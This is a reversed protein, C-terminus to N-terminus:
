YRKWLLGRLYIILALTNHFSHITITSFINDTKHYLYAFVFGLSCYPILYLLGQINSLSTLVHLGGFILGSTLIYILKNNTIDKISKRFILEETIPAYIVLQFAMYLPYSDILTRVNEENQALAGNTLITIIFNSTIMIGFGILWTSFSEKLHKKLNDNFYNKFDKKITKRYIFLMLIVFLCDNVFLILIKMTKNINDIDINFLKLIIVPIIQWLVLLLTLGITIAIKKIKEELKDLFTKKM